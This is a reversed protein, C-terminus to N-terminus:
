LMPPSMRMFTYEGFSMRTTVLIEFFRFSEQALCGTKVVSIQANAPLATLLALGTLAILPILKAKM